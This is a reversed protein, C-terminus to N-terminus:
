RHEKNDAKRNERRLAVVKCFYLSFNCIISLHQEKKTFKGFYSVSFGM